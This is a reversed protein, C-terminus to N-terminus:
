FDLNVKTTGNSFLVNAPTGNQKAIDRKSNISIPIKDQGIKM